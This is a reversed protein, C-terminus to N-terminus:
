VLDALMADRLTISVDKLTFQEGATVVTTSVLISQEADDWGGIADTFILSNYSVSIAVSQLDIVAWGITGDVASTIKVADVPMKQIKRTRDTTEYTYKMDFNELSGVLKTSYDSLLLNIDSYTQLTATAPMVGEFFYISNSTTTTPNIKTKTTTYSKQDQTDAPIFAYALGTISSSKM